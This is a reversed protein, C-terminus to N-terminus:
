SEISIEIFVWTNVAIFLFNVMFNVCLLVFFDTKEIVCAAQNRTSIVQNEYIDINYTLM